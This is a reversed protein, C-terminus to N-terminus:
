RTIILYLIGILLNPILSFGMFFPIKISKSRIAYIIVNCGIVFGSLVLGMSSVFCTAFNAFMLFLCTNINKNRSYEICLAFLLPLLISVMITKGQGIRLLLFASSSRTSFQAFLNLVSIIILFISTKQDDERFFTKGIYYYVAYAFVLLLPPFVTHMLITPHIGTLQAFSAFIDPWRSLFYDMAFHPATPAGTYPHFQDLSNTYWDTVATGLYWADDIDRHRLFTVAYAQICFLFINAITYFGHFSYQTQSLWSFRYKIMSAIALGICGITWTITVYSLKTRFLAFFISIGCYLSMMVLIGYITCRLRDTNEKSFLRGIFPPLVLCGLLIPILEIIVM